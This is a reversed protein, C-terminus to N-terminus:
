GDPDNGMPFNFPVASYTTGRITISRLVGDFRPTSKLWDAQVEFLATDGVTEGTEPNPVAALELEHTTGGATATIAISPAASRM